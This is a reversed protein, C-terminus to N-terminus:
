RRHSARLAALAARLQPLVARDKDRGAAEKSAIIRELDLVRLEAGGVDVLTTNAIEHEFDDLGDCHTVVDIRDLGEGALIPPQTRTAYFGGAARAAEEIAPDSLSEFWLDLDQTTTDAGQLVAASLGVLVFRVGRRNLERFLALEQDTFPTDESSPV